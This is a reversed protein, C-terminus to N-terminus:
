ILVCTALNMISYPLAEDRAKMGNMCINGDSKQFARPIREFCIVCVFLSCLRLWVWWCSSVKGLKSPWGTPNSLKM